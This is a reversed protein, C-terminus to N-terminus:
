RWWGAPHTGRDRRGSASPVSGAGRAPPGPRTSSGRRGRRSRRATPVAPCPRLQPGRHGPAAAARAAPRADGAARLRLARGSGPGPDPEGGNAPDRHLRRPAGARLTGRALAVRSARPPPGAAPRRAGPPRRLPRRTGRLLRHPRRRHHPRAAAGLRPAGPGGRDEPATSAGAGRARGVLRHGPLVGRARRRDGSRAGPTRLRRRQAAARAASSAVPGPDRSRACHPGAVADPGRAPVGGPLSRHFLPRGHLRRRRSRCIRPRAPSRLSSRPRGGVPLPPRRHGRRPDHDLDLPRPAPLQGPLAPGAGRAGAATDGRGAERLGHQSLTRRLLPDLLGGLSRAPAGGGARRAVRRAPALARPRDCADRAAACGAALSCTARGPAGAPVGGGGGPVRPRVADAPPPHPPERPRLHFLRRLGEIGRPSRARDLVRALAAAVRHAGRNRDLGRRWPRDHLLVGRGRASRGPRSAGDLRSTHLDPSAGRRELAARLGAPPQGRNAAHPLRRRLGLRHPRAGASLRRPPPRPPGRPGRPPRSGRPPDGRRPRAADPGPTSDLM